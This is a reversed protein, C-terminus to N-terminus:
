KHCSNCDDGNDVHLPLVTVGHCSRCNMAPSHPPVDPKPPAALHSPTSKHCVFCAENKVPLHCSLCHNDMPSGWLGIHSQPKTDAHCASCSAQKHCTACSERDVAAAYGHARERWFVNHSAPKEDAHCRNCTQESHCMACDNAPGELGSRVVKGHMQRWLSEHNQPRHLTDMVTHCTTCSPDQGVAAHCDMCTQMGLALGADVQESEAIGKHCQACEAGADLHRTHSFRVEDSLWTLAAAKFTGDAFLTDIHREPPKDEDIGAHCLECQAQVPYGLRRGDPETVHCDTCGLGEEAHRVHSFALPRDSLGISEFVVCGAVATVLLGALVRSAARRGRGRASAAEGNSRPGLLDM